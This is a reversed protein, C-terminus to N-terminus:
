QQLEDRDEGKASAVIPHSQYSQVTFHTVSTDFSAVWNVLCMASNQVQRDLNVVVNEDYHHHWVITESYQNTHIYASREYNFANYSTYYNFANYSTVVTIHVIIGGATCLIYIHM